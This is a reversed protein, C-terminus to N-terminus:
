LVKTQNNVRGQEVHAVHAKGNGERKRNGDGKWAKGGDSKRKAAKKPKSSKQRNVKKKGERKKRFDKKRNGDRKREQAALTLEDPASSFTTADDPGILISDESTDKSDLDEAHAVQALSLVALTAAAAVSITWLKM